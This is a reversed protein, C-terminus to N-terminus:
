YYSAKPQNVNANRLAITGDIPHAKDDAASHSVALPAVLHMVHAFILQAKAVRLKLLMTHLSVIKLLPVRRRM